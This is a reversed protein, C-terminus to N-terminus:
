TILYGLLESETGEGKGKKVMRVNTGCPNGSYLLHHGCELLDVKSNAEEWPNNQGFFAMLSINQLLLFSTIKHITLVKPSHILWDHRKENAFRVM